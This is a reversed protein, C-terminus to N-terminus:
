RGYKLLHFVGRDHYAKVNKRNIRIAENLDSIARDFEDPTLNRDGLYVYIIPSTGSQPAGGGERTSKRRM